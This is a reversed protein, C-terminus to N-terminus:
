QEESYTTVSGTSMCSPTNTNGTEIGPPSLRIPAAYTNQLMLAKLLIINYNEPM